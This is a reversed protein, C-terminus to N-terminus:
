RSRVSKMQECQGIRRGELAFSFPSRGSVGQSQLQVLRPTEVRIETQGHGAKACDYHVIAQKATNAIPFAECKQGTHRFQLLERFDAMCLTRNMAPDNRSRFEWLGAQLSQLAAYVRPAEARSHGGVVLLAALGLM